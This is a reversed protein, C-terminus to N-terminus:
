LRDPNSRDDYERHTLVHRVFAATPYVFGVVLRYKNGGTNFM